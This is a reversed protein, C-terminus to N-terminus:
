FYNLFFQDSDQSFNILREMEITAKIKTKFKELHTDRTRNSLLMATCSSPVATKYEEIQVYCSEVRLM